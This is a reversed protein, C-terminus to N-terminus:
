NEHYVGRNELAPAARNKMGPRKGLKRCMAILLTALPIVFEFLSWVIPATTQAFSAHQVATIYLSLGYTIVLAGAALVIHRYAKINMLQSITLVSIYYLISIKFFLLMILAITFLIEVRSLAEGLNVLRLVVLSPVSFLHLMNGLVAIDRLKIILLSFGGMIFGGMLYKTVRKGRLDVNPTLMMMAVLEGFPITAIIHTGQVYKIAPQDFMPLFNELKFEGLLLVYSVALIAFAVVVFLPAFRATVKIGHRVALTAVLMCTVLLVANPTEDMITLKALNSLDMANLSTLTIFFWVYFVSLIKGTVPGYVEQLIQVLNKDPFRNMLAALVWVLPLCAVFGFIVVLWSDHKTVAALFATLLSSSQLFCAAIFMFQTSSIRSKDIRM